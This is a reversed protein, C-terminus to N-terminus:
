HSRARADDEHTALRAPWAMGYPPGTTSPSRSFSRTAGPGTAANRTGGCCAKGRRASGNSRRAPVARQPHGGPVRGPRRRADRLGAHAAAAEDRHQRGYAAVTARGDDLRDRTVRHGRERRLVVDHRRGRRDGVDRQVWALRDRDAVAAEALAVWDDPGTPQPVTMHPWGEPDDLATFLEPADAVTMPRMGYTRVWWSSATSGGPASARPWPSMLRRRCADGRRGAGGVGVVTRLPVVGAWYPLALDAEDDGVPGTRRKVSVDVLDLAIVATKALEAPPRRGATRAAACTTPPWTWRGVRIPRRVPPWSSASRTSSRRWPRGSRPRTPSSDAPATRSWPGTTRATTSSRGRSCWHTPSPPRWSSRCAATGAPPSGRRRRRRVTCTSPRASGYSCRRCCGRRATSSSASTVCSPRTSSM